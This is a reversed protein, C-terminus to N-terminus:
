PTALCKDTHTHCCRGPWRQGPHGEWTQASLPHGAPGAWPSKGGALAAQPGECSYLHGGCPSTPALAGLSPCCGAQRGCAPCLAPHSCATGGQSGGASWTQPDPTQSAAPPLPVCGPDALHALAMKGEIDLAGREGGRATRLNVAHEARGLGSRWTWRCFLSQGRRHLPQGCSRPVRLRISLCGGRDEPSHRQSGGPRPAGAVSHM